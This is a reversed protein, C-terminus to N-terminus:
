VVKARLVSGGTYPNKEAIKILIFGDKSDIRESGLPKINGPLNGKKFSEKNAKMMGKSGANWAKHGGKFQGTRGSKIKHRKVFASLQQQAGELM